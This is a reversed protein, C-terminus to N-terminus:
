FCFDAEFASDGRLKERGGGEGGRAREARPPGRARSPRVWSGGASTDTAFPIQPRMDMRAAGRLIRM